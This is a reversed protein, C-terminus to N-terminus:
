MDCKGPTIINRNYNTVSYLGSVYRLEWIASEKFVNSSEKGKEDNWFPVAHYFHYKTTIDGCHYNQYEFYGGIYTGTKDQHCYLTFGPWKHMIWIHKHLEM